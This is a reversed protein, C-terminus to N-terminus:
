AQTAIVKDTRQIALRNVWLMWLAFVQAYILITFTYKHNFDLWEPYHIQIISLSAVRLANSLFLLSLGLPIFWAKSKGKGPFAAIFGAFLAYVALGNCNDAIKLLPVEQLSLLIGDEFPQASTSYGLATLILQGAKATIFTFFADPQGLHKLYGEYCFLWGLLLTGATLLFKKTSTDAIKTKM